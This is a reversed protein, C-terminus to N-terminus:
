LLSEDGNIEDNLIQIRKKEYKVWLFGKFLWPIHEKIEGLVFVKPEQSVM